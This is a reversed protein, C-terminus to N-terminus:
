LLSRALLPQNRRHTQDELCSEMKKLRRERTIAAEMTSHTEYWVLRHVGYKRTFGDVFDNQHQWVRQVLNSTVGVYITGKPRSALIYVCPNKMAAGHYGIPDYEDNGDLPSM